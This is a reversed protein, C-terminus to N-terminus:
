QILSPPNMWDESIMVQTKIQTKKTLRKKVSAAVIINEAQHSLLARVANPGFRLISKGPDNEDTIRESKTM